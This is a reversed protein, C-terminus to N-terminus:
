RGGGHLSPQWSGTIGYYSQIWGPERSAWRWLVEWVFGSVASALLWRRCKKRRKM